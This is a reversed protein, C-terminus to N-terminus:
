RSQRMLEMFNLNNRIYKEINDYSMEAQGLNGSDYRTSFSERDSNLYNSMDFNARLMETLSRLQNNFNNLYSITEIYNLEHFQYKTIVNSSASSIANSKENIIEIIKKEDHNITRQKELEEKRKERQEAKEKLVKQELQKTNDQNVLSISDKVIFKSSNETEKKASDNCSFLFVVIVLYNIKVM